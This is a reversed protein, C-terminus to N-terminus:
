DEQNFIPVPAWSPFTVPLEVCTAKEKLIEELELKEGSFIPM